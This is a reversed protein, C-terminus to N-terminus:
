RVHLLASQFTGRWCKEPGQRHLKTNAYWPTRDGQAQWRADPTHPLLLHVPLGLAGALHGIATDVCIVADLVSCFAATEAFDGIEKGFHIITKSNTILREEDLTLDRQLSYWEFDSSLDTFIEKISLSRTKDKPHAKNGQWALGIRPRTKKGLKQKWVIVREPNAKLYASPFPVTEITTSFALPLSMLPCHFDFCPLTSGKEFLREKPLLSQMIRLLPKEVELFVNCKINEFKKIYRCFQITDGLGQESHLLINKGKLSHQGLWLPKAFNRRPSPFHASAWRYEYLLWANKYDGIMLHTLAKNWFGDAFDPKVTVSRALDTIAKDFKHLDRYAMARNNLARYHKPDIDIAHSFDAIAHETRDSKYYALARNYYAHASNPKVRIAHNFDEIANNFKQQNCNAIGRSTLVEFNNPEIDLASNFDSIARKYLKQMLFVRGRQRFAALKALDLVIMESFIFIAIEFRGASQADRAFKLLVDTPSSSYAAIKRLSLRASILDGDQLCLQANEIIKITNLQLARQSCEHGLETKSTINEM